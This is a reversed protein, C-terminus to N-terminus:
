GCCDDRPQTLRRQQSVDEAENCFFSLVSNVPLLIFGASAYGVSEAVHKVITDGRQRSATSLVTSALWLGAGVCGGIYGHEGFGQSEFGILMLTGAAAKLIRDSLATGVYSQACRQLCGGTPQEDPNRFDDFALYAEYEALYTSSVSSVPSSRESPAPSGQQMSHSSSKQAQLAVPEHSPPISPQSAARTLLM